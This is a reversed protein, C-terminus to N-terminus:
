RCCASRSRAEWISLVSLSLGDAAAIDDGVPQTLATRCVMRTVRVRVDADAVTGLVAYVDRVSHTADVFRLRTRSWLWTDMWKCRHGGITRLGSDAM